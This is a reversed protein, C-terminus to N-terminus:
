FGKFDSAFIRFVPHAQAMLQQWLHPHSVQQKEVTM